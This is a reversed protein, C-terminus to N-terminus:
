IHQIFNTLMIQTDYPRYIRFTLANRRHVPPNTSIVRQARQVYVRFGM